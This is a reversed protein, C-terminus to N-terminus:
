PYDPNLISGPSECWHQSKHLHISRFGWLHYPLSQDIWCGDGYKEHSEWGIQHNKKRLAQPGQAKSKPDCGSGMWMAQIQQLPGWFIVFVRQNNLMAM